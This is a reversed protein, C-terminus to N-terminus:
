TVAVNRDTGVDGAEIVMLKNPLNKEQQASAASVTLTLAAVALVLQRM